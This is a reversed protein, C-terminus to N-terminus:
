TEYSIFRSKVGPTPIMCQEKKGFWKYRNRAIVNYLADRLPKPIVWFLQTWQWYWPLIKLVKLSASSSQYAKGKDILIFSNFDSIPLEYKELLQKGLKSQMPLFRLRANKDQSIMFNVSANCFNCVGDFLVLPHQFEM